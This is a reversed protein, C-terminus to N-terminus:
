GWEFFVKTFEAAKGTTLPYYAKNKEEYYTISTIAVFPMEGMWPTPADLNWVPYADFPIELPFIESQFETATFQRSQQPVYTNEQADWYFSRLPMLTLGLSFHTASPSEKKNVGETPFYPKWIVTKRIPCLSITERGAYALLVNSQGTVQLGELRHATEHMNLTRHGEIRDGENILERLASSLRTPFTADKHTAAVLGMDKRIQARAKVSLTFEQQIELQKETPKRKKTPAQAIIFTGDKMKRGVVSGLRGSFKFPGEM